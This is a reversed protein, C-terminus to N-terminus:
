SKLAAARLQRLTAVTAVLKNVYDPDTAYGGRQLGSGFAQADAGTGLAGAYRPSNQLL